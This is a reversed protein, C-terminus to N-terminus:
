TKFRLADPGHRLRRCWQLFYDASLLCHISDAIFLGLFTEGQIYLSLWFMLRAIRSLILLCVYCTTLSEIEIMRRMLWLQPLLAVAELYITFAVLVQFSLWVRGPHFLIALLAAGPVLTLVSIFVSVNRTQTHRYKIMIFVLYIAILTSCCLELYAIKNEVIRTDLSWVCRSITSLLFCIQTDMVLGFTTRYQTIKYTLLLSGLFHIAYGLIFLWVEM